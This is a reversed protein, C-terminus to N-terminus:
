KQELVTNMVVDILKNPKSEIKIHSISWQKYIKRNSKSVIRSALQARNSTCMDEMQQLMKYGHGLQVLEILQM